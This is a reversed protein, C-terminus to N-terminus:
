VLNFFGTVDARAEGDAILILYICYTVSCAIRRHVMITSIM